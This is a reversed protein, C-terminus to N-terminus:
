GPNFVSSDIVEGCYLCNAHRGSVKQGCAPCETARRQNKGDLVGDRMDVEYLKNYLDDETLGTKEALLEWLAECIMLSTALNEELLKVQQETRQTAHKAKTAEGMSTHAEHIAGRAALFVNLM